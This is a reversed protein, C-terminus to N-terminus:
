VALLFVMLLGVVIPNYMFVPSSTIPAYLVRVVVHV